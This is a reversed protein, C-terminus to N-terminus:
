NKKRKRLASQVFVFFSGITAGLIILGIYKLNLNSTKKLISNDLSPNTPPYINLLKKGQEVVSFFQELVVLQFIFNSSPSEPYTNNFESIKKNILDYENQYFLLYLSTLNDNVYNTYDFIENFKSIDNTKSRVRGNELDLSSILIIDDYTIQYKNNSNKWDLFVDESNFLKKFDTVTQNNNTQYFFNRNRHAWMNNVSFNIDSIYVTEANVLKNKEIQLYAGGSLVVILVFALIILKNQWITLFIDILDIDEDNQKM